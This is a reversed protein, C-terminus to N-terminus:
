TRVVSISGCTHCGLSIGVGCIPSGLRVAAIATGTRRGISDNATILTASLGNSDRHVTLTTRTPAGLNCTPCTSVHNGATMALGRLSTTGLGSNFCLCRTPGKGRISLVLSVKGDGMSIRRTVTPVTVAVLLLTLSGLGVVGVM